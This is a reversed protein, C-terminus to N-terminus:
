GETTPACGKTGRRSFPVVVGTQWELPVAGSTWAINCLRTLWSLGVADLAKLFEPCLEDVGPASNSCLQKAAETVEAGSILYGVELDELEIDEASHMDFPNHLDEFHEKWQGVIEGTSTLLERCGSYVTPALQQRGRRLCRFTEWFKKPASRFDKEMAEGSEKKLKVARRM